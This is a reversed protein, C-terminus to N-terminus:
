MLIKMPKSERNMRDVAIVVYTHGKIDNIEKDTDCIQIINEPGMAIIANVNNLDSPDEDDFYEYVIYKMVDTSKPTTGNQAKQWTLYVGDEGNNMFKLGKVAQPLEATNGYMPAIAYTSQHKDELNYKIGKYNSMITFGDSWINGKVNELERSLDFRGALENTKKSVPDSSTMVNRVENDLYIDVGNANDNWWRALIRSPSTRHGFTKHLQPAVYDVWGNEMWVLVDEYLDDYDQVNGSTDSGKPDVEVNRWIEHPSVGFRVWPKVAKITRNTQELLLNINNRRWEDRSLEKNSANYSPNDGTFKNGVPPYPYFFDDFHIGDVDYRTVIDRVIGCLYDRNEAYGPDAFISEKVKYYREPHKNIDHSSQLTDNEDVTLRMPTIWAYLQLGNDHAAKIACELPDWDEEDPAEGREGTLYASWPEIESKYVADGAPRVQFIVTNFRTKKMQSMFDRIYKEQAASNLEWWDMSGVVPLYVGRFEYKPAPTDAKANLGLILCFLLGFLIKKM